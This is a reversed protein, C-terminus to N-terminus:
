AEQIWYVKGLCQASMPGSQLNVEEAFSSLEEAEEETDVCDEEHKIWWILVRKAEDFTACEQPENDPMYGPMNTGIVYSM